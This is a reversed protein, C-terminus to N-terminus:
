SNLIIRRPLSNNGSVVCKKQFTLGDKIEPLKGFFSDINKKTSSVTNRKLISRIKKLSTGIPIEIVM